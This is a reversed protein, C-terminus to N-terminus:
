SSLKISRCNREWLDDSAAPNCSLLQVEMQAPRFDFELLKFGNFLLEAATGNLKFPLQMTHQNWHPGEIILSLLQFQLEAIFGGCVSVTGTLLIALCNFM